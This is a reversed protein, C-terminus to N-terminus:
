YAVLAGRGCWRRPRGLESGQRQLPKEPESDHIERGVGFAVTIGIAGTMATRHNAHPPRYRATPFARSSRRCSSTSSRTSGSGATASSPRRPTSSTPRRPLRRSGSEDRPVEPRSGRQRRGDSQASGPARQRSGAAQRGANGSERKPTESRGAGAKGRRKKTKM